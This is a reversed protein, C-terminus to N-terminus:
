FVCVLYLRPRVIQENWWGEWARPLEKEIGEGTAALIREDHWWGGGSGFPNQEQLRAVTSQHWLKQNPLPSM